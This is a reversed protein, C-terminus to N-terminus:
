SFTALSSRSRVFAFHCATGECETAKTKSDLALRNLQALSCMELHAKGLRASELFEILFARSSGSGRGPVDFDPEEFTDWRRHVGGKKGLVIKRGEWAFRPPDSSISLFGDGDDLQSDVLARRRDKHGDPAAVWAVSRDCPAM